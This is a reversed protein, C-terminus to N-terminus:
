KQKLPCDSACSSCGSGGEFQPKGCDEKKTATGFRRYLKRLAAGAAIGIIIYTFIEQTM